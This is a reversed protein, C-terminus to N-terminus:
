LEPFRPLEVVPCALCKGWLEDVLKTVAENTADKDDEGNANKVQCAGFRSSSEIASEKVCKEWDKVFTCQTSGSAARIETCVNFDCRDTKDKNECYDVAHILEHVLVAEAEHYFTSVGFDPNAIGVLITRPPVFDGTGFDGNRDFDLGPIPCGNKRLRDILDKYRILVNKWALGFTKIVSGNDWGDGWDDDQTFGFPDATNPVFYGRYLSMGDVYEM